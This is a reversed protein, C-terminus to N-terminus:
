AATVRSFLTAAIPTLAIEACITAALLGWAALMAWRASWGGHPTIDRAPVLRPIGLMIGATAGFSLLFGADLISVPSVAVALVGAVAVTNLAAGRQDVVVAALFIVAASVARD